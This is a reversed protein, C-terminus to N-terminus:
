EPRPFYFALSVTILILYLYFFFRDLVVALQKWERMAIEREGQHTNEDNVDHILRTVRSRIDSVDMTLPGLGTPSGLGDCSFLPKRTSGNAGSGSCLRYRSPRTQGGGNRINYGPGSDGDTKKGISNLEKRGKGYFSKM